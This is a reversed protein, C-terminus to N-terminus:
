IYFGWIDCYYPDRPTFHMYINYVTQKLVGVPSATGNPNAIDAYYLGNYTAANPETFIVTSQEHGSLMPKVMDLFDSRQSCLTKCDLLFHYLDEDSEHCM